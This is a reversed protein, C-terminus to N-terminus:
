GVFFAIVNNRVYKQTALTKVISKYYQKMNNKASGIPRPFLIIVKYHVSSVDKIVKLGITKLVYQLGTQYKFKTFTECFFPRLFVICANYM